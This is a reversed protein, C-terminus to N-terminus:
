ATANTKEKLMLHVLELDRVYIHMSHAFHTYAGLPLGLQCSMEHLLYCFWPMDYVLGKVADNSRMCTTARLKGDRIMFIMHMTCVQDNNGFYQHKPLSFRLFAQRSNGDLRLSEKVWEWSTKNGPLNRDHFALWGYNSNITGDPNALNQWFRSAKEAWVEARLEGTKYLDFEAQQYRAIVANRAPDNTVIPIHSPNEVVFSYDLLELTEKNRPQVPEGFELVQHLTGLYADSTTKYTIVASSSTM